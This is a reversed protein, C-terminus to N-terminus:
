HELRAAFTALRPHAFVKDPTGETVIRGAEMFVVRDAVERAFSMEHTVVVMTTGARALDTMLDLVDGVLEPDLASTPEDFLIAKPKQMLARSIAVRQQQGGSLDAPYAHAKEALGVSRLTELADAEADRRRRRAVVTPGETLNGLVSRHPWLNFQQFVMALENRLWTLRFQDRLGLRGHRTPHYDVERGDVTVRGSDPVELMNICRLLTSKGAGSPGIIVVVEGPEVHLNVDHLVRTGGYSKNLSSIDIV